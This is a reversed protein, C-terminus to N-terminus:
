DYSEKNRTKKHGAAAKLQEKEKLIALKVQMKRRRRKQGKSQYFEHEKLMNPIGYDQCSRKFTRWLVPLVKDRSLRQVSHPLDSIEVRVRAGHKKM